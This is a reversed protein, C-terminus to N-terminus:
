AAVAAPMRTDAKGAARVAIGAVGVLQGFRARFGHNCGCPRDELWPRPAPRGPRFETQFCVPLRLRAAFEPTVDLRTTRTRTLDPWSRPLARLAAPSRSAPMPSSSSRRRSVKPTLVVPQKILESYLVTEGDLAGRADSSRGPGNAPLGAWWRGSWLPSSWRIAASAASVPPTPLRRRIFSRPRIVTAARPTPATFLRNGRAAGSPAPGRSWPPMPRWNSAPLAPISFRAPDASTCGAILAAGLLVPASRLMSQSVVFRGEDAGSPCLGHLGYIAKAHRGGM